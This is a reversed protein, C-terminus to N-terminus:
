RRYPRLNRFSTYGVHSLRRVSLDLARFYLGLRGTGDRNEEVKQSRQPASTYSKVGDSIGFAQYRRYYVYMIDRHLVCFFRCFVQLFVVM